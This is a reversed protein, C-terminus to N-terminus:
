VWAVMSVYECAVDSNKVLTQAQTVCQRENNGAKVDCPSTHAVEDVGEEKIAEAANAGHTRQHM